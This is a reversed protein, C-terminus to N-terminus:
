LRAPGTARVEPRDVLRVCPAVRHSHVQSRDCTTSAAPGWSALPVARRGPIVTQTYDAVQVLGVSLGLHGFELGLWNM